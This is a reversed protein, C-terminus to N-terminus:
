KTKGGNPVTQPAPIKANTDLAMSLVKALLPGNRDEGEGEAPKAVQQLLNVFNTSMNHINTISLAFHHTLTEVLELLKDSSRAAADAGAAYAETIRRGQADLIQAIERRDRNLLKEDSKSKADDESAPEGDDESLEVSRLIADQDGLCEVASARSVRVTSEVEAWRQQKNGLEVVREDGDPLHLRLKKPKPNRRLWSRLDFM